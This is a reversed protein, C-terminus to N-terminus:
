EKKSEIEAKKVDYQEISILGEDRQKQLKELKTSQNDHSVTTRRAQYRAASDSQGNRANAAQLGNFFLAAFIILLLTGTCVGQPLTYSRTNQINNGMVIAVAIIIISGIFFLIFKRRDNDVYLHSSGPVLMNFLGALLPNRNKM